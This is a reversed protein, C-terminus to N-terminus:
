WWCSAWSNMLYRNSLSCVSNCLRMRKDCSLAELPLHWYLDISTLLPWYLEISTLLSQGGRPWQLKSGRIVYDRSRTYNVYTECVWKGRTEDFVESLVVCERPRPRRMERERRKASTSSFIIEVTIVVNNPPLKCFSTFQKVHPKSDKLFSGKRSRERSIGVRKVSLRDLVVEPLEMELLDLSFLRIQWSSPKNGKGKCSEM